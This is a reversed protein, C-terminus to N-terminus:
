RGQRLFWGSAEELTDFPGTGTTDVSDPEDGYVLLLRKIAPPETNRELIRVKAYYNREKNNRKDFSPNIWATGEPEKGYYPKDSLKAEVYRAVLNRVYEFSASRQRENEVIAKRVSEAVLEPDLDHRTFGVIKPEAASDDSM